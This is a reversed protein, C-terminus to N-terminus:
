PSGVAAAPVARRPRRRRRGTAPGVTRTRRRFSSHREGYFASRGGDGGPGGAGPGGAGPGAWGPAWSGPGGGPMGRPDGAAAGVWWPATGVPALGHGAPPGGHGAPPLAPQPAGHGAPPLGPVPAGFGYPAVGGPAAPQGAPPTPQGAPNAYGQGYMAAPSPVVPQGPAPQGPAPQGPAPQGTAPQGIPPTPQSWWGGGPDGPIGAATPGGAAGDPAPTVPPREHAPERRLEDDMAEDETMRGRGGYGPRRPQWRM